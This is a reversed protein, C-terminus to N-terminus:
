LWSVRFGGIGTTVRFSVKVKATDYNESFHASDRKEFDELHMGSLFNKEADVRVGIERPVLVRVGGVGVQIRVDANRKWAGSFDLTAGGVGGEFEFDDFNLNGLGVANMGGVGNKIRVSSCVVANPEYMSIRADGVGAVINLSEVRLGSLALRTEGVGSDVKLNLPLSETLNLRARNQHADTRLGIKHNSTLRFILRGHTGPLYDVEPEYTSRDYDLDLDYINPGKEAGIEVTGIDFRVEAQLSKEGSPPQSKSLSTMDASVSREDVICAGVALAMAAIVLFLAPKM